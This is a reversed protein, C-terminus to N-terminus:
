VPNGVPVTVKLTVAVSLLPAVTVLCNVTLNM